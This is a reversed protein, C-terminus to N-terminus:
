HSRKLLFLRDMNFHLAAHTKFTIAIIIAVYFMMILIIPYGVFYQIDVSNIELIIIRSDVTKNKLKIKYTCQNALPM